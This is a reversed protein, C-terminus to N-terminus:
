WERRRRRLTLVGGAVIVLAVIGPEPVVAVSFVTGKDNPGGGATTGYAVGNVVTLSGQPNAGDGSGGTFSHDLGFGLGDLGLHFVTGQGNAGGASTTGYLMSDVATLSGLPVTGDGTGGFAHLEQFSAGNTAIRFVTGSGNVGGGSTTGYLDSGSLLLSGQPNSGVAFDHLVGFVLTNIDIQFLMGGNAAGGNATMGYLTSGSLTLSGFPLSGDSPAGTFSHLVQFGTGDVGIRFITGTGSTGGFQTMGYLTSGSLVLSGLPSSGDTASGTFNWLTQYVGATTLSFITGVSGTGGGNTMGFFTSGNLVLSGAPNSGLAFSHILAESSGNPDLRFVSGANNLGGESTMGYLLGGAITVDGRPLAGDGSAGAFTHLVTDEGRGPGTVALFLGLTLAGLFQSQFGSLRVACAM